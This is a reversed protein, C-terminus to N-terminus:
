GIVRRDHIVNYMGEVGYGRGRGRGGPFGRGRGGLGGPVGRGGGRFSPVPTGRGSSVAASAQQQEIGPYIQQGMQAQDQGRFDNVPQDRVSFALM